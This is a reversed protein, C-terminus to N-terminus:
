WCSTSPPLAKADEGSRLYAGKLNNLLRVIMERKGGIRDATTSSSSAAPTELLIQRCDEEHVSM